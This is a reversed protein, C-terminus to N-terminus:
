KITYDKNQLQLLRIIPVETAYNMRDIYKLNFLSAFYRPPPSIPTIRLPRLPWTPALLRNLQRRAALVTNRMLMAVTMPGVGGPVPTVHSAM